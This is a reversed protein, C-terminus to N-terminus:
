AEWEISRKGPETTAPGEIELRQTPKQGPKLKCQVEMKDNFSLFAHFIFRYPPYGPNIM